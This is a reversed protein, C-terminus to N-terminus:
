RLSVFVVCCCLNLFVHSHVWLTREKPAEATAPEQAAPQAASVPMPTASPPMAQQHQLAQHHTQMPMQQQPHMGMQPMGAPATYAMQGGINGQITGLPAHQPMMMQGPVNAYFMQGGANPLQAAMGPMLSMHAVANPMVNMHAAHNVGMISAATQGAQNVHNNVHVNAANQYVAANPMEAGQNPLM